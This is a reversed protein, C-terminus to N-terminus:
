VRNKISQDTHREAQAKICCIAHNWVVDHAYDPFLTRFLKWFSQQIIGRGKRFNFATYIVLRNNGDKTPTIDFLLKGKRTFLEQPAYLLAKDLICRALRIDMSIPLAKLKYRIISGVHNPLGSTRQVDVFRLRLFEATDDGFKGLEKFIASSTARIKISYMREMEPTTDLDIGLPVSISQKIYDRKEKLIVTPYRGYTGWNLGFFMETLVNRLTKFVGTLVSCFVPLCLLDQCIKGYDAGGSGIQWLVKGLPWKNMGKFKMETAFTQYLIRSLIESKLIVQILGFIV